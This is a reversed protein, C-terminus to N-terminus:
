FCIILAQYILAFSPSSIFIMRGIKTRSSGPETVGLGERSTESGGNKESALHM